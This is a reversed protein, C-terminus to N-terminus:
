EKGETKADPIPKAITGSMLEFDDYNDNSEGPVVVRLAAVDQGESIPNTLRRSEKDAAKRERTPKGMRFDEYVHQMVPDYRDLPNNIPVCQAAIKTLVIPIAPQQPIALAQELALQAKKLSRAQAKAEKRAAIVPEYLEKRWLGWKAASELDKTFEPSYERDQNNNMANLSYDSLFILAIVIIFVRKM